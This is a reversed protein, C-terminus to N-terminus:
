NYPEKATVRYCTNRKETKERVSFSINDHTNVMSRMSYIYSYIIHPFIYM